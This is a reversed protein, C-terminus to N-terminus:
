EGRLLVIPDISAARRAPAYAAIVVVTIVVAVVGAYTPMDFPDVDFLVHQLLRAGALAAGLGAGIGTCVWLAARGMVNRVVDPLRAGLALRVALERQRSAVDLSVLSVLGLTALGFAAAAFVTFMWATLRWPAMARAVVADLTTMRDLVARPDFTRIRSQIAAAAATPEGVTRVVLHGATSAAQLAPDYVDFRVDDLGRYRVDSVVGVVTRWVTSSDGPTFSSMGLRRGIPDRGPWLQAATSEGVIAVRPARLDDHEDFLRGRRLSVHMARFYGPTAVQYNLPPNVRRAAISDPQGELLASTEEGIAGLALPPLSIAGVAQVGPLTAVERILNDFWKNASPTGDRPSLNMVLVGGPDFGLNVGRLRIFSRAVLGAAVLLVVGLAIQATLLLSRARRSKQGATNRGADALADAPNTAAAHRVPGIGCLFAVAVTAAFTFAAVPLNIAVNSLGPIDDPALAVITAAIWRSVILAVAGGAISLAGAEIAWLRALDFRTAGLALRIAHERRRIAVRSLLLASVNACAILLLIGVAAFLIWLAARVPGLLYDLFPTVVVQTGFTAKGRTRAEDDIRDIEGAATVPTAGQRLRGVVFLVGVDALADMRWRSSSATLSPVVPKWLEAGRPFDFGKPMVGVVTHAVGDLTLAAGVIGRDGGFRRIWAGYNIAVVPAANPVDDRKEFSRGIFPHVGMTDFFSATVGAYQVRAPEGNGELVAAWNSSGIAATAALSSAAAWDEYTRYSLEVVPLNRSPAAQWCVVLRSPSEIPLPNLLVARVAGFIASNAAVALALTTITAVTYGPQKVLNRLVQRTGGTPDRWAASM